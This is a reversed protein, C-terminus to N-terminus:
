LGAGVLLMPCTMDYNVGNVTVPKVLTSKASVSITLKGSKGALEDPSLTQGDLSYTITFQMPPTDNSKGSYYLDTSDMTWYLRGDRREPKEGTKVDTIDMLNSADEVRSQPQDTHLHDSVNVQQVAGDAALNVYVTESKTVPSDSTVTSEVVRAERVYVQRSEVTVAAPSLCVLAMAAMLALALVRKGISKLM